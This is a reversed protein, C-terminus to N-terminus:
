EYYWQERCQKGCEPDHNRGIDWVGNGCKATAPCRYIKIPVVGVAAPEKAIAFGVPTERTAHKGTDGDPCQLDPKGPVLPHVKRGCCVAAEM